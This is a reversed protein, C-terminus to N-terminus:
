RDSPRLHDPQRPTTNSAAAANNTFALRFVTGAAHFIETQSIKSAGRRRDTFVIPTEAVSFGAKQVRWLMELLYSYGDARISCPDVTQLVSARYCRFGATCDHAHLGLMFRAFFNAGRSLLRRHAGWLRVGGGPVYRSGIALDYDDTLQLLAPIYRPNHSFDADMTLIRDYGQELASIFGATYATGLGLKAQRHIVQVRPDKEAIADVVDGTGDPSNDDVILVDVDEDLGLIREILPPVNEAENYTPIIVISQLPSTM